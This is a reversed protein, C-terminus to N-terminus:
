GNGAKRPATVLARSPRRRSTFADPNPCLRSVGAQTLAGARGGAMSRKKQAATQKEGSGRPRGRLCPWLDSLVQAFLM